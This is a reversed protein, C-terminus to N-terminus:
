WLARSTPDHAQVVERWWLPRVSSTFYAHEIALRPDSALLTAVRGFLRRQKLEPVFRFLTRGVYGCPRPGPEPLCRQLESNLQALDWSRRFAELFRREASQSDKMVARRVWYGSLAEPAASCHVALWESRVAQVQQYETAFERDTFLDRYACSWSDHIEIVDPKAFEALYRGPSHVRPVIASGLKGLDIINFDKHWSVAGLDPNALTPRPIDSSRAVANVLEVVNEFDRAGWGIVTRGPARSVAIGLSCAIIALGVAMNWPRFSERALLLFPALATSYIALETVTRAVDLRAPGFLVYQAGCALVGACLLACRELALRRAGVALIVVPLWLFQYGLLSPSVGMLWQHCDSLMVLPEHALQSVRGLVHIGQAVATHPTWYGFYWREAVLYALWPVTSVLVFTAARLDRHRLWWLGAFTTLLLSVPVIADARTLSALFVLGAAWRKIQGSRLMADLAWLLWVLLVSKYPNEMGSAHWLLFARSSALLAASAAIALVIFAVRYRGGLGPSSGMGLLLASFGAGLLMTGLVTQLRFFTRYDFKHLAYVSAAIGFQLPASYGEIREGSPSVGIFGYEVLNRAHSLTIVADDRAEYNAAPLRQLEHRFAISFSGAGVLLVVLPLIRVVVRHGLM